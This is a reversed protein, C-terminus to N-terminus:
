TEAELLRLKTFDCMKPHEATTKHGFSDPKPGKLTFHDVGAFDLCM